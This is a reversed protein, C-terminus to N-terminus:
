PYCCSVAEGQLFLVLLSESAKSTRRLQVWTTNICIVQTPHLTDSNLIIAFSDIKETGSNGNVGPMVGSPLNREDVRFWAASTPHPSVSNRPVSQSHCEEFCVLVVHGLPVEPSRNINIRRVREQPATISHDTVKRQGFLM